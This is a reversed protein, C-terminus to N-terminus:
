LPKHFMEEKAPQFMEGDNYEQHSWNIVLIRKYLIEILEIIKLIIAKISIVNELQVHNLSFPPKM